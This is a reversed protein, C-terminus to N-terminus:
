KCLSTFNFIGFSLTLPCSWREQRNGVSIMTIQSAVRTSWNECRVHHCWNKQFNECGTCRKQFRSWSRLTAFLWLEWNAFFNEINESAIVIKSVFFVKNLNNQYVYSSTFGTVKLTNMTKRKLVEIKEKFESREQPGKIVKVGPM